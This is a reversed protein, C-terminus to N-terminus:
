IGHSHFCSTIGTGATPPLFVVTMDETITSPGAVANQHHNLANDSDM